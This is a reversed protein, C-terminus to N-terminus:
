RCALPRMESTGAGSSCACGTGCNRYTTSTGCLPPMVGYSYGSGPCPDTPGASPSCMALCSSTSSIAPQTSPVGDCNWDWSTTRTCGIGGTEACQNRWQRTFYRTQRPHVLPADTGTDDLCDTNNAAFGVTNPCAMVLPGAGYGDHDVDAYQAVPGRITSNTDDCDAVAASASVYGSPATCATVSTSSDGFGDGDRDRWYTSGVGEDVTGDCNNDITDCVEALNAHQDSRTDNCDAGTAPSRDTYGAPCQGVAGRMADPCQMSPTADATAYTDADGDAYCTVTAGEDTMGDCDDDSGNCVEPTPMISCASWMGMVCTQTGAACAGSAGVCARSATGSCACLTPPNAAGDCDEDVALSDCVEMAGPHVMANTDDCDSGCHATGASDANCCRRDAAGDGDGDRVGFTVADCDEDHNTGDCVEANGPFRNADADDCDDGGCSTARHGDGDADPCNATCRHMTEDCSQGTTCPGDTAPVCGRANAGPAGPACREAGNCFVSDPCEDDRVCTSSVDMGPDVARDGRTDAGADIAVPNGCACIMAVFVLAFVSPRASRSPIPPMDFNSRGERYFV